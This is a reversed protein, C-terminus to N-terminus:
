HHQENAEEKELILLFEKLWYLVQNEPKRLKYVAIKKIQELTEPHKSFDITLTNKEPGQIKEDKKTKENLTRRKGAKPPALPSWPQANPTKVGHFARKNEIESPRHEDRGTKMYNYFASETCGIKEAIEKNKLGKDKLAGALKVRLPKLKKKSYTRSHLFKRDIGEELCITDILADIKDTNKESGAQGTANEPPSKQSGVESVKGNHKEMIKKGQECNQCNIDSAGPRAFFPSIGHKARRAKKLGKANKQRAICAAVSMHCRYIECYMRDESKEANKIMLRCDDTML